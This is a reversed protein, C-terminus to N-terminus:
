APTLTDLLNWNPKGAYLLARIRYNNFNTFGFGIRKIRKLLNNAAETPGNSIHSAHWNSIQTKWRWLTRGLKNVEEPLDSDQLDQALQKVTAAGVAAHNIEYVSRLTEKAQWADRVEGDPDGARLLGRLKAEGRSSTRERAMVLLKRARYLPDQKRGRHGLTENQVRRRVDDLANNALRVVHFPDAVQGAHPLATDYASRYPGSLDLAAWRIGELWEEPQQQLWETSAAATRGRIVDLLKGASVDVVSTAWRRQRYRGRRYFLIEDLGLAQVRGIRERDAKLLAKGWFMVARNVPRWDCGLTRAIESVPTGRGCLRTAHKGARTTLVARSPALAPDQETFTKVGCASDPCKWRRKHWVLRVPRGFAPLDVLPVKRVGHAWVGGACGECLPRAQKKSIHVRLPKGPVDDVGVVEVGDLGVLIENIRTPDCEM